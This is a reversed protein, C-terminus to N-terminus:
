EEIEQFEIHPYNAFVPNMNFVTVQCGGKGSYGQNIIIDDPLEKLVTKLEGVTRAIVPYEKENINFFKRPVDTRRKGM